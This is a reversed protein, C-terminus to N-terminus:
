RMVDRKFVEGLVWGRGFRLRVLWVGDEVFGSWM